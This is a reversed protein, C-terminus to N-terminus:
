TSPLQVAGQRLVILDPGTCDVVTSPLGACEGGDVVLLDPFAARVEAATTAPPQGHLNASTSALPGVEACVSRVLDHNPIRLGVTGGGARQVVVTLGGPWHRDMLARAAAIIESALTLAQDVDAVLVPLELSAPRGKLVYLKESVAPLCVLGYVTDTPLAVVEGRRLADVVDVTV